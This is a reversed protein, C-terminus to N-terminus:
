ADPQTNGIFMKLEKVYLKDVNKIHNQVWTALFDTLEIYNVLNVAGDQMLEEKIGAVKGSFDAHEQLHAHMESYGCQRMSREETEFHYGVYELLENIVAKALEDQNSLLCVQYSKNLLDFLHRHHSDFQEIEVSYSEDWELCNM